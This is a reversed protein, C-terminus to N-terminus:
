GSGYNKGCHLIEDLYGGYHKTKRLGCVHALRKVVFFPFMKSCIKLFQSLSLSLSLSLSSSLSLSLSLSFHNHMHTINVLPFLSPLTSIQWLKSIAAFLERVNTAALASTEAFIADMREAYDKAEDYPIKGVFVCVSVRTRVDAFLLSLLVSLALLLYVILSATTTGLLLLGQLVSMCCVPGGKWGKGFAACLKLHDLAASWASRCYVVSSWIIWYQAWLVSVVICSVRVSSGTCREFCMCSLARCLRLHDLVGSLAWIHCHVVSGWIVWYLVWLVYHCYVVASWTIWYLGWLVFIVICWVGEASGACCESCLCSVRM